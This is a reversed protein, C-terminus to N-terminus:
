KSTYLPYGAFGLFMFPTEFKIKFNNSHNLSLALARENELYLGHSCGQPRTGAVGTGVVGPVCGRCRENDVSGRGGKGVATGKIRGRGRRRLRPSFLGMARPKEPTRRYARLRDQGARRGHQRGFLGVARTRARTRRRVDGM